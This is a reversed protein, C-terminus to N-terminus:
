QGAGAPQGPRRDRPLPAERRRMLGQVNGYETVVVEGSRVGEDLTLFERTDHSVASVVPFVTLNGHRIPDLVTYGNTSACKEPAFRAGHFGPCQPLCLALMVFPLWLKFTM